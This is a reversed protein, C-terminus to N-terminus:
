EAIAVLIKEAVILTGTAPDRRLVYLSLSWSGGGAGVGTESAFVSWLEGTHIPPVENRLPRPRHVGPSTGPRPLAIALYVQGVKPCGSRLAASDTPGVHTLLSACREYRLPGGAPVGLRKLIRRRSDAVLGLLVSDAPADKPPSDYRSAEADPRVDMRLQYSSPPNARDSSIERLVTEVAESDVRILAAHEASVRSSAVRPGGACATLLLVCSGIVRLDNKM